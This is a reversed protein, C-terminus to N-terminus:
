GEDDEEDAEHGDGDGAKLGCLWKERGNKEQLITVEPTYYNSSIKAGLKRLAPM